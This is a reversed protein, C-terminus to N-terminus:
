EAKQEAGDKKNNHAEGEEREPPSMSANLLFRELSRM